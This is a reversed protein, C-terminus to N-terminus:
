CHLQWTMGFHNILGTEVKVMLTHSINDPQNVVTDGAYTVTSLVQTSLFKKALDLQYINSIDLHSSANWKNKWTQLFHSCNRTWKM